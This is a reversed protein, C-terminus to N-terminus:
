YYPILTIRKVGIGNGVIKRPTLQIQNIGKDPINLVGLTATFDRQRAPRRREAKTSDFGSEFTVFTISEDGCSLVWESNASEYECSYEISVLYDGAELVNIDWSAVAELSSWNHIYKNHKWEVFKEMWRYNRVTCQRTTAMEALVTAPTQGDIQIAQNESRKVRSDLTLKVVTILPLDRGLKSGLDLELISDDQKFCVEASDHLLSASTVKAGM